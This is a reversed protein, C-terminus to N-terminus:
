GKNASMEDQKKKHAMYVDEAVTLEAKNMPTPKEEYASKSKIYLMRQQELLASNVLAHIESLKVAQEAAHEEILSNHSDLTAKVEEVKEAAQTAKIEVKAVLAAAEKARQRDADEKRDARDADNREKEKARKGTIMLTILAFIGTVMASVTTIAGAVIALEVADSTAFLM